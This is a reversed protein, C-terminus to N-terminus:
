YSETRHGVSRDPNSRLGSLSLFPNISFAQGTIIDLADYDHDPYAGLSMDTGVGIHEVSGNLQSVYDIQEIFQDMTPRETQGKKLLMPGWPTLGIVGGCLACAKILEDEINRPNEVLANANSHSFVM